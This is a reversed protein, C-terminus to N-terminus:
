LLVFFGCIVLSLLYGLASHSFSAASKDQNDTNRIAVIPATITVTVMPVVNAASNLGSYQASIWISFHNILKM